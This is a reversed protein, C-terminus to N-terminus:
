VYEAENAARTLREGIGSYRRRAKIGERLKQFGEGWCSEWLREARTAELPGVRGRAAGGWGKRRHAGCPHQRGARAGPTRERRRRERSAPACLGNTKGLGGM